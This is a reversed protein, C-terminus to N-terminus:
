AAPPPTPRSATQIDKRGAKRMRAIADEIERTEPLRVMRRIKRYCATAMTSRVYGDFHRETDLGRMMERWLEDFPERTKPGVGPDDGAITYLYALALRLPHEPPQFRVKDRCRDLYDEVICVAIMAIRDVM